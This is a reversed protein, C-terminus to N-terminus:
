TCIWVQLYYVLNHKVPPFIQQMLPRLEKGKGRGMHKIVMYHGGERVRRHGLTKMHGISHQCVHQLPKLFCKCTDVRVRVGRGNSSSCTPFDLWSWFFWEAFRYVSHMENPDCTKSLKNSVQYSAFYRIYLGKGCCYIYKFLNWLLLSRTQKTDNINGLYRPCHGICLLKEIFM